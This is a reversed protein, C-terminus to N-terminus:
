FSYRVGVQMQWRSALPDISYPKGPDTFQYLPYGQANRAPIYPQLGISATSNYTNPSFYV